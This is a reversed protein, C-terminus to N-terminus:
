GNNNFSFGNFITFFTSSMIMISISIHRGASFENWMINVWSCQVFSICVHLISFYVHQFQIHPSHSYLDIWVRICPREMGIVGIVWFMPKKMSYFRIMHTCVCRFSFCSSVAFNGYIIWFFFFFVVCCLWVHM